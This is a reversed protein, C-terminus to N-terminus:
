TNSFGISEIVVEVQMLGTETEKTEPNSTHKLSLSEGTIAEIDKENESKFKINFSSSYLLFEESSGKWVLIHRLGDDLRHIPLWQTLCRDTTWHAKALFYHTVPYFDHKGSAKDQPGICQTTENLLFKSYVVLLNSLELIHINNFPDYFISPSHIIDLQFVSSM